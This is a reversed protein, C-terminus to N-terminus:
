TSESTFYWELEGVVCAAGSAPGKRLVDAHPAATDIFSGQRRAAHLDVRGSVMGSVNRFVRSTAYQFSWQRLQMEELAM